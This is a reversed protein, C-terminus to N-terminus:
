RPAGPPKEFMVLDVGGSPLLRVSRWGALQPQTAFWGQWFHADTSSGYIFFRTTAPLVTGALERGYGEAAAYSQYPFLYPKGRIPYVSLYAYLFGPLRYQPTWVPPKGEVFASPCIVPTAPGLSHQNLLQAATRWDFTNHTPWPERWQGLAILVGVGLLAALPKWYVSPIWFAAVATAALAAGPLSLALYRDVFLSNGTLWSFAFLGLPQCLWWALILAVSSGLVAPSPRRWRGAVSLILAGIGCTLVLGFKLSYCLDRAQPEAVVVHAHAQRLLSVSKAAVPALSVSLVALVAAAHRWRVGTEHRVLRFAAYLAFVLYFPWFVLHTRWLLSASVVFLIADRWRASDLWRILFLVSAAAICFGLAYPRADAAAYNISRLALCAFVAFWGAHHHILRGAIGAVLFLAFAMALVSPVRYAVESAGFLADALRPLWYYISEPVQPAADLSSHSGGHHVVFVTLAEDTWFSSPLPMVWLRIVCAALVLSLLIEIRRVRALRALWRELANRIQPFLIRHRWSPRAECQGADPAAASIPM